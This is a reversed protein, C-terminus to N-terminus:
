EVYDEGKKDMNANSLSDKFINYIVEALMMAEQKQRNKYILSGASKISEATVDSTLKTTSSTKSGVPAELPYSM